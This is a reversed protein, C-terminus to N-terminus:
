LRSLKFRRDGIPELKFKPPKGKPWPALGQDLMWQGIEKRRVEPCNRWFSGSPAIDLVEGNEMEVTVSPWTKRFYNDRDVRRVKIGYGGGTRNNPKGNNWGVVIM